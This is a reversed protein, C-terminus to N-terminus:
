SIGFSPERKTIGVAKIKNQNIDIQSVAKEFVEKCNHLIEIPDHEVWGPSPFIQNHEKQASSIIKGDHDFVMCRTSTTGQDIAAIFDM